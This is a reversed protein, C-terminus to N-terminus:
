WQRVEIKGIGPVHQISTLARESADRIDDGEVSFALALKGSTGDYITGGDISIALAELQDISM